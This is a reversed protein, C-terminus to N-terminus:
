LSACVLLALAALTWNLTQVSSGSSLNVRQPLIKTLEVASKPPRTNSTEEEVVVVRLHTQEQICVETEPDYCTEGCLQNNLKCIFHNGSLTRFCSEKDIAYCHQGCMDSGSPCNLEPTATSARISLTSASSLAILLALILLTYKIM